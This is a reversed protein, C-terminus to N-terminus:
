TVPLHGVVLQDRRSADFWGLNMAGHAFTIATLFAAFALLVRLAQSMRCKM